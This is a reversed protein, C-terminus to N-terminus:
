RRMVCSKQRRSFKGRKTRQGVVYITRGRGLDYNEREFGFGLADSFVIVVVSFFIQITAPVRMRSVCDMLYRSQHTCEAHRHLKGIALQICQELTLPQTLDIQQEEQAIVTLSVLILACVLVSRIRWRIM